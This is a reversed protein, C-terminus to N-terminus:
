KVPDASLDEDCELNRDGTPNRIVIVFPRVCNVGFEADIEVSAYIGSKTKIYFSFKHDGYPLSNRYGCKHAIEKGYGKEPPTFMPTDSTECVGCGDGAVVKLICDESREDPASLVVASLGFDGPNSVGDVLDLWLISGDRNFKFTEGRYIVQQLPVPHEYRWIKFEVPSAPDPIHYNHSFYEAYEFSHTGGGSSLNCYGIPVALRLQFMKGRIGTISILGMRDSCLNLNSTGYGDSVILNAACGPVPNGHQDVIKGYFEIPTRWQFDGHNRRQWKEEDEKGSPRASKWGFHDAQLHGPGTAHTSLFGPVHLRTRFVFMMILCALVAVVARRRVSSKMSGPLPVNM